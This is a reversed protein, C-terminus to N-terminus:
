SALSVRDRGGQKSRYLAEDARQFLAEWSEGSAPDFAAVGLSASLGIEVGSASVKAARVLGRLREAAQAAQELRADRMLVCFEEGGYRAVVDGPRVAGRLLAGAQTLVLDGAAHGHVDNVKKFHDLDVIVLACPRAHRVAHALETRAHQELARRNFCGTLADTMALQRALEASRERHMLLMALGFGQTLVLSPVFALTRELAPTLLQADQEYHPALIAVRLVLAIATAALLAFTLKRSPERRLGGDRALEYLAPAVLVMTLLSMAIARVGYPAGQAVFVVFLAVGGALVAYPWRPHPREGVFRRCARSIFVAATWLLGNSAVISVPPGVVDRLLQLAFGVSLAVMALVADRVGPAADRTASAGLVGASLVASLVSLAVVTAVDFTL